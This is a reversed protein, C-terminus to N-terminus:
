STIRIAGFAVMLNKYKMLEAQAKELIDTDVLRM